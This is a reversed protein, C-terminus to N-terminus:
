CWVSGCVTGRDSGAEPHEDTALVPKADPVPRRTAAFGLAVRRHGFWPLAVQADNFQQLLPRLFAHRRASQLVVLLHSPTLFLQADRVLVWRRLTRPHAHHFAAPLSASLHLLAHEVLAAIWACLHLPGQRFGPRDPLGQKPYGSPVTDLALDHVGIRHSQEHHQRTRFEHLLDLPKTTDDHLIFLAHWRDKGRKAHERVVITRVPKALGQIATTTETVEIRKPKAGVYRGPEDLVEFATRPLQKWAKVYTPRRPARILFVTKRHRDLARLGTHSSAAAADLILRLQLPRARRRIARLAEKALAALKATGKTVILFLAHRQLPWYLYSVKEIRMHKNRITHHGKAIRYKRTFRAIAHEDLSLTVVKGRLARWQETARGFAKAARTTVARVLGGLKTRSLVRRGGTLVAFGVDDLTDFHFLRPIGLVARFFLSLVLRQAKEVSQLSGGLTSAAARSLGLAFPM